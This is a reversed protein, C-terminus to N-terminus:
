KKNLINNKIYKVNKKITITAIIDLVAYVIIFIGVIQTLIVGAKFPNFILIIGCLASVISIIMTVKWVNNNEKKLLVAYQLKSASSVLIGIGIIFPIISAIGEPNNIIIVGFTISIVAYLIDLSSQEVKSINSIYKIISFVGLIILLGGLIYSIAFITSSSKFTLLLGFILIIFSSIISSRFFNKFLKEM